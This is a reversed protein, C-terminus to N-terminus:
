FDIVILSLGSVGTGLLNAKMDNSDWSDDTGEKIAGVAITLLTSYILSRTKSIKKSRFYTYATYNLAYSGLAHLQKDPQDMFDLGSSNSQQSYAPISIIFM